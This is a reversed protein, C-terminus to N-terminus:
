AICLLCYAIPLLCYAIPFTAWFQKLHLSFVRSPHNRGRPARARSFNGFIRTFSSIGKMIHSVVSFFRDGLLSFSLIQPYWNELMQIIKPGAM